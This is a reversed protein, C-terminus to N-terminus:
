NVTVTKYFFGTNIVKNIASWLKIMVLWKKGSVIDWLNNQLILTTYRIFHLKLEDRSKFRWGICRNSCSIACALYPFHRRNRNRQCRWHLPCRYGPVFSFILSSRRILRLDRALGYNLMVAFSDGLGTQHLIHLIAHGIRQRQSFQPVGKCDHRFAVRFYGEFIGYVKCPSITYDLAFCHGRDNLIWFRIRIRLVLMIM